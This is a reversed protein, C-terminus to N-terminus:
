APVKAVPWGSADIDHIPDLILLDELDTYKELVPSRFEVNPALWAAEAAPVRADDRVILGEVLLRGVFAAVDQEIGTAGPEASALGAIIRPLAVGRQIADIIVGGSERASYYTGSEFAILLAEGEIIQAVVSPENIRYTVGLAQDETM